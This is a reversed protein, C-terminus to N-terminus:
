DEAEVDNPSELSVERKKVKCFSIPLIRKLAKCNCRRARERVAYVFDLAISLKLPCTCYDGQCGICTCISGSSPM